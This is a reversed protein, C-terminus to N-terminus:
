PSWPIRGSTLEQVRTEVCNVNYPGRTAQLSCIQTHLIRDVSRKAFDVLNREVKIHKTHLMM